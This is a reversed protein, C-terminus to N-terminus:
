AGSSAVVKRITHNFTDAVYLTGSGDAAVGYPQNFRTLAGTAGNTSGTTGALGAVTSVMGSTLVMQRITSNGTDAIYLNGQGIALGNPQSFRAVSGPGDTSGSTGVMGAVTTVMGNALQIKRIANNLTDAVYLNGNGDLALGCPSFFGGAVTTVDGTSLVVKR